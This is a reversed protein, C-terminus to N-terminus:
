KFKTKLMYLLVRCLAEIKSIINLQLFIKKAFIYDKNYICTIISSKMYEFKTKELEKEYCSSLYLKISELAKIYDNYIFGFKQSSFSTGNVEVIRRHVSMKEELFKLEGNQLLILQILIDGIMKTSTLIEKITQQSFDITNRFMISNIHLIGIFSFKRLMKLLEVPSKLDKEKNTNLIESSPYTRILKNLQIDEVIHYCGIIGTNNDLMEVQKKLKQPNSIYDDGEIILIYEGRAKVLIDYLNNCAGINEDRYICTIINPYKREYKKLIERSKDPSNDEGIIIEYDYELKQNIISDLCEEIYKEHNYTIILISIKPNLSM